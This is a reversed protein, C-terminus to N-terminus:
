IWVQLGHNLCGPPDCFWSRFWPISFTFPVIYDHLMMYKKVRSQFITDCGLCWWTCDHVYFSSFVVAFKYLTNFNPLDVSHSILRWSSWGIVGIKCLKNSAFRSWSWPATSPSTRSSPRERTALRASTCSARALPQLFFCFLSLFQDKFSSIVIYDLIGIGSEYGNNHSAAHFIQNKVDLVWFREKCVSSIRELGCKFFFNSYFIYYFMIYKTLSVDQYWHTVSSELIGFIGAM